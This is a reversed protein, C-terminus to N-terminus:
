EKSFETGDFKAQAVLKDVLQKATRGSRGKQMLVWRLALQHLEDRDISLSNQAALSEVIKLYENQDPSTFTVTIGFRDSLSLKEDQVDRGHVESQREEHTEKILHKRNSTAYVLINEPRTQIGGEILTKLVKYEPENDDFSLDDIFIIFKFPENELLQCIQAFDQLDNKALEVLRLGKKVYSNLLAKVMSSKGTGRNGYLLVNNSPLGALFHETNEIVIKKERELGVLDDLQIPDPNKIGKFRGQFHDKYWRVAAYHGFIGFGVEKYHTVLADMGEVLSHEALAKKIKKRAAFLWEAGSSDKEEVSTNSLGGIEQDWQPWNNPHLPHDTPIDWAENDQLNKVVREKILQPTLNAVEQLLQLDRRAIERLSPPIETGKNAATRSFLNDDDLILDLLFDPWKYELALANFRHYADITKAPIAGDVEEMLKQWSRVVENDAIQRYFTLGLLLDKGLM